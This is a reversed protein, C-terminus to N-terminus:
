GITPQDTPKPGSNRSLSDWGDRLPDGHFKCVRKVHPWAQFGIHSIKKVGGRFNPPFFSWIESFKLRGATLRFRTVEFRSLMDVFLYYTEDVIFASFCSVLSPADSRPTKRCSLCFVSMTYIIRQFNHIKDLLAFNESPQGSYKWRLIKRGCHGSDIGSITQPNHGGYLKKAILFIVWWKQGMDVVAHRSSPNVLKTCM